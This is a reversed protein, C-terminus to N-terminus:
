VHGPVTALALRGRLGGAALARRGRGGRRRELRDAPPDVGYVRLQMREYVFARTAGALNANGLVDVAVSDIEVPRFAFGLDQMLRELAVTALMSRQPVF